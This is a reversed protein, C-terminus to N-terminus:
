KTSYFLDGFLHFTLVDLLLCFPDSFPLPLPHDQPWPPGVFPEAKWYIQKTPPLKWHRESDCNRRSYVYIHFRSFHGLHVQKCPLFLSVSMPFLIHACPPLLPPIFQSIPSVYVRQWTYVVYSTPVNQLCLCGRGTSQSSRKPHSPTTPSSFSPIHTYVRGIRKSSCYFSVCCQLTVISWNFFYLPCWCFM